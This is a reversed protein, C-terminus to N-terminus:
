SYALTLSSPLGCSGSERSQGDSVDEYQRLQAFGGNIKAFGLAGVSILAVLM